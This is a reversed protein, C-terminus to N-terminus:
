TLDRVRAMLDISPFEDNRIKEMLVGAYAPVDEPALIEEILDMMTTSPYPDRRVKEILLTVLEHHVDMDGNQQDRDNQEAM